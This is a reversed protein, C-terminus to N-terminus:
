TQIKKHLAAFLAVQHLGGISILPARGAQWAFGSPKRQAPPNRPFEAKIEEFDRPQLPRGKIGSGRRKWEGWKGRGM